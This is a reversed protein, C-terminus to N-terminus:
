ASLCIPCNHLTDHIFENCADCVVSSCKPCQKGVNAPIHVTCTACRSEDNVSKFRPVPFLHHYSRALHPSAILSLSCVRCESPIESSTSHCRPCKYANLQTDKTDSCITARVVQTPFGMKVFSCKLSSNEDALVSPPKVHQLVLKRMHEKDLAVSYDGKTCAALHKCVHVEASIGVVSCRISKGKLKDITEFVNGPDCTTLSGQLVIVERFGYQPISNMCTYALELGNQLSFDGDTKVHALADLHVKSSSSLTTIREAM